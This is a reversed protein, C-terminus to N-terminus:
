LYKRRIKRLTKLPDFDRCRLDIAEFRSSSVYTHLGDCYKGKAILQSPTLKSVLTEHCGTDDITVEYFAVANGYRTESNVQAPRYLKSNRTFYPGAGRCALPDFAKWPVQVLRYDEEPFIQYLRPVVHETIGNPLFTSLYLGEDKAFVTTDVARVGSLLVKQKTWHYPFDTARYLAVENQSSTEPIMFWEDNHSFVFPYSYHHEDAFLVVPDSLTCDEKVEAVEIRGKEGTVAEYFLFTRNGQDVLIPDAVWEKRKAPLIYECRFKPNNIMDSATKRCLGITFYHGSLFLKSFLNNKM